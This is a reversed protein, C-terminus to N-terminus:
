WRFHAFAKNAEAAKHMDEKKKIANGTNNAADLLEATLKEVMSRGARASSIDKIWRMAMSIRRDSAVEVPIQYTSGGVRRAKVEMQPAVNNIASEFVSLPEKKTKEAILDFSDYVIKEAISKKGMQMIKNIFKQVLFSNYKADPYAKHKIAKGRRSM